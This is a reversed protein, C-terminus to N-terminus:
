IRIVVNKCSLQNGIATVGDGLQLLQINHSLICKWIIVLCLNMYDNIRFLLGQFKDICTKTHCCVFYLLVNSLDSKGACSLEKGFIFVLCCIVLDDSVESKSEIGCKHYGILNLDISKGIFLSCSRYM